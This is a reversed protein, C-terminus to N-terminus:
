PAHVIDAPEEWRRIAAGMQGEVYRELEPQVLRYVHNVAVPSGARAREIWATMDQESPSTPM